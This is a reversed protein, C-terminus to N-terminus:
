EFWKNYLDKRKEIVVASVKELLEPDCDKPLVLGLRERTLPREVVNLIEPHLKAQQVALPADIVFGQISGELLAQFGEEVIEFPVAEAGTLRLGIVELSSTNEQAGIKKGGADEATKIGSDKRVVLIQGANFTWDAFNVVEQREKTITAGSAIIDWDKWIGKGLAGTISGEEGQGWPVAKYEVTVGLSEAIANCLDVEFGKLQDGDWIRFLGWSQDAVAIRITGSVQIEELSRPAGFAIGSFLALSFFLGMGVVAYKRFM